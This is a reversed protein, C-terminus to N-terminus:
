GADTGGSRADLGAAGRGVGDRRGAVITAVLSLVALVAVVINLTMGAPYLGWENAAFGQGVVPFSIALYAVVFYASTVEARKGTPAAEVLAALGKSFSLGQGVGVVLAGAAMLWISKLALAGILVIVGVVLIACGAILAREIAVTRGALQSVASCVFVAAVLGGVVAHNHVDLIESLFAPAVASFSGLVAFGAAAAISTRLFVGRLGDPVALPQISLRRSRAAVPETIFWTGIGAAALLALDVVFPTHLPAPGYEALFGTVLPGLGLGGINAATAVAPARHQWSPPALEIVAATATGAYIGAALGSLVRGVMLQWVPGATVFVLASALSLAIGALLMPRRGVVDSWRGCVILAAIVGAAYVAFIITTTLVGFDLEASYLAYLPTPITTSAMVVTFAYVVTAFGRRSSM